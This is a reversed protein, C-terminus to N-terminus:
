LPYGDNKPWRVAKDDYYADAPPKVNTVEDFPINYRRLHAEIRKHMEPKRATLIVVRKGAAKLRKVLRVGPDLPEGLRDIPWGSEHYLLTGDLDVCATGIGKPETKM